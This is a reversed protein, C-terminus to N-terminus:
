KAKKNKVSSWASQIKSSAVKKYACVRAYYKTKSKLGSFKASTTGTKKITKTKAIKKFSKDKSLQVIYGTTQTAQKKWKVTLAKKSASLSKISTSKPIIYYVLSKLADGDSFIATNDPTVSVSYFGVDVPNSNGYDVIMFGDVSSGDVMKASVTPKHAKGDYVYKEKSLKLSKVDIKYGSSSDTLPIECIKDFTIYKRDSSVTIKEVGSSKLEEGGEYIKTEESFEYGDKAEFRVGYYYVGPTPIFDTQIELQHDISAVEEGSSDTWWEAAIEVKDEDDTEALFPVEQGLYFGIDFNHLDITSIVTAASASRSNSIGGSVCILMASALIFCLLKSSKKQLM